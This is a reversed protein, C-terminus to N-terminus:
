AGGAREEASCRELAARGERLCVRANRTYLASSRRKGEAVELQRSWLVNIM